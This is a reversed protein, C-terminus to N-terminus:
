QNIKKTCTCAFQDCLLVQVIQWIKSWSFLDKWPLINCLCPLTACCCSSHTVHWLAPHNLTGQTHLPSSCECRCGRRLLWLLVASGSSGSHLFSSQVRQLVVSSCWKESLRTVRGERGTGVTCHVTCAGVLLERFGETCYQSWCLGWCCSGGGFCHVHM